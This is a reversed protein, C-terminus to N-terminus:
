ANAEFIDLFTRANLIRTVGHTAPFHRLNGTILYAANAAEAGELLRNDAEHSSISLRQKPEVHTGFAYFPFLLEEVDRPHLRFKSRMLVSQYEAFIPPSVAPIILRDRVLRVVRAENGTRSIMSSILINTDLTALPAFTL